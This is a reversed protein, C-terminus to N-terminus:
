SRPESGGNGGFDREALGSRFVSSVPAAAAPTGAAPRPHPPPELLEVALEPDRGAPHTWRWTALALEEADAERAAVQVMRPFAPAILVLRPRLDPRAALGPALQLWDGIRAQAWARQALGTALLAEDGAPGVVIVCLRGDPEMALWDIRADEEGLVEEALVQLPRGLHGLRSRLARRLAASDADRSEM